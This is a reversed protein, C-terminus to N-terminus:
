QNDILDAAMLCSLQYTASDIYAQAIETISEAEDGWDILELQSFVEWHEGIFVIMQSASISRIQLLYDVGEHMAQQLDEETITEDKFCSETLIGKAESESIGLGWLMHLTETCFYQGWEWKSTSTIKTVLAEFDTKTISFEPLM